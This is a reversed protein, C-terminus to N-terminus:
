ATKLSQFVKYTNHGFIGDPELGGHLQLKEGGSYICEGNDCVGGNECTVEKCPDCATVMALLGVLLFFNVLSGKM